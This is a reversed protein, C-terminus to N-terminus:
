KKKKRTRLFMERLNMNKISRKPPADNGSFGIKEVFNMFKEYINYIYNKIQKKGFLFYTLSCSLSGTLSVISIIGGVSHSFDSFIYKYCKMVNINIM